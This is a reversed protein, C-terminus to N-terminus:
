VDIMHNDDEEEDQVQVGTHAQRVWAALCVKRGRGRSHQADEKRGKGPPPSVRGHMGNDAKQLSSFLERPVHVEDKWLSPCRDKEQISAPLPTVM